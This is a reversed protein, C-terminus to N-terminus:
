HATTTGGLDRLLDALRAEMAAHVGHLHEAHRSYPLGEISDAFRVLTQQARRALEFAKADCRGNSVCQQLKRVTAWFATDLHGIAVDRAYGNPAPVAPVARHTLAARRM